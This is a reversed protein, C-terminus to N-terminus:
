KGTCTLIVGYDTCDTGGSVFDCDISVSTASSAAAALFVAPDTPLSGSLDSNSVSCFPTETFAGTALTVVCRGTSINGVSAVANGLQSNIGSSADCDINSISTKIKSISGDTVYLQPTNATLVNGYNVLPKVTWHIDPQGRASDADALLQSSSPGSGAVNQEYMLRFTKQSVDALFFQGCVRHGWTIQSDTDAVRSSSKSGGEALITQSNPATQVVQFTAFATNAAGNPNLDYIFSACAEVWGSKPPTFAVGVSENGASCTTGSPANTSSCPIMVNTLSGKTIPNNTLTLSGNEIGTYSAVNGTGLSPNAGSITADVRWDIQDQSGIIESGIPFRYIKFELSREQADNPIGTSGSSTATQIKFIRTGSSTYSVRGVIVLRPVEPTGANSFGYAATGMETTGDYLRWRASTGASATVNLSAIVLYDGSPANTLTVQPLDADANSIYSGSVTPAPCDADTGYDVFSTGPTSSWSCSTTPAYKASALFQAQSIQTSAKDRLHLTCADGNINAENASAQIRIRVNRAGGSPNLLAEVEVPKLNGSSDAPLAQSALVVTNTSDYLEMVYTHTDDILGIHCKAYLYGGVNAPIIALSSQMTDTGSPNWSFGKSSGPMVASTQSLPQTTTGTWGSVGNEFSPNTLLEERLLEQKEKQTPPLTLAANSANVALLTIVIFINSLFKM